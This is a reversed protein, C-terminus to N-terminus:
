VGYTVLLQDLYARHCQVMSTAIAGIGGVAALANGTLAGYALELTGTVIGL